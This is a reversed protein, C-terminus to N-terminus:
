SNFAKILDSKRLPKSLFKLYDLKKSVLLDNDTSCIFLELKGREKKQLKLLEMLDVGNLMTMNHDSIVYSISQNIYKDIKFLALADVGDYAKIVEFNLNESEIVKTALNYLSKLIIKNDDIVMIKKRMNLENKGLNEFSLKLFKLYPKFNEYIKLFDSNQHFNLSIEYMEYFFKPIKNLSNQFPDNNASIFLSPKLEEIVKEKCIPLESDLLNIIDTDFM